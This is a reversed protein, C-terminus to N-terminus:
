RRLKYRGSQLKYQLEREKKRRDEWVEMSAAYFTREEETLEQLVTHPIGRELYYSM